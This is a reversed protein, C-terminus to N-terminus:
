ASIPRALTQVPSQRYKVKMSTLYSICELLYSFSKGPPIKSRSTHARRLLHMPLHFVGPVFVKIGECVFTANKAKLKEM